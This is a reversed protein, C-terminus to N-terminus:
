NSKIQMTVFFTSKESGISVLFIFPLLNIQLLIILYSLICHSSILTSLRSARFGKSKLIKLKFKQASLYDTCLDVCFSGGISGFESLYDMCFDACFSVGISGFESLYDMCFDACFSVGISGFESLYDTCLDVCFSVGISGFESLYDTCLDVCFSVGISGFESLYDMCFDACFSADVYFFTQHSNRVRVFVTPVFDQPYIIRM